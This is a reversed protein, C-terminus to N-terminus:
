IPVIRPTFVNIWVIKAKALIFPLEIDSLYIILLM